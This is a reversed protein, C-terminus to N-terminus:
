IWVLRQFFRWPRRMLVWALSRSGAEIRAEGTMGPRLRGEFGPGPVIEGEATVTPQGMPWEVTSRVHDIRATGDAEPFAQFKLAATLDRDGLLVDADREPVAIEVRLPTMEALTCLIGGVDLLEGTRESLRPTLLVGEIPAKLNADELRQALHDREIRWREADIRALRLAAADGGAELRAANRLASEHRSAAESHRLVLDPADIRALVAGRPVTEGEKWAGVQRIVGAVPASVQVLRSPLVTARGPVRLEWRGLVLIALALLVAAAWFGTRRRPMARARTVGARLPALLGILPVDGYLRANRLAVTAQNALITAGELHIEDIFDASASEFSIVGLLGQDDRLPIALFARAGAAEMHPIAQPAAEAPECSVGGAAPAEEDRRALIVTGRGAAWDLVRELSKMEADARDVNATGSVARLRLRGAEEVLVACRDFGLTRTPLNALAHLLRRLDLSATIEKSITLIGKFLANRRGLDRAMRVLDLNKRQLIVAAASGGLVSAIKLDPASFTAGEGRRGLCLAGLVVDQARLPVALLADPAHPIHAGQAFPAMVEPRPKGDLWPQLVVGLKDREDATIGVPDPEEGKLEADSYCMFAVDAEILGAAEDMVRRGVAAIDATASAIEAVTTLVEIEEYTALLEATVGDLRRRLDDHDM